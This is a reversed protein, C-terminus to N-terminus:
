KRWIGWGAPRLFNFLRRRGQRIPFLYVIARLWPHYFVERQAQLSPPIPFRGNPLVETWRDTRLDLEWVDDLQHFQSDFGRLGQIEQGQVGTPSGSGGALFLRTPDDDAFLPRAAQRPWPLHNAPQNALEVWQGAAEDFEHRSNNVKFFGYGGFSGMRGTVPNWYLAPAANRRSDPGGGLSRVRGTDVDIEYVEGLGGEVAWLKRSVPHLLSSVPQPPLVELKRTSLGFTRLDFTHFWFGSLDRCVSYLRGRAWDATAYEGNWAEVNFGQSSLRRWVATAIPHSRHFIGAAAAVVGLSGIAALWGRRSVKRKGALVESLAQSLQEASRFRRSPQVHCARLIVDNLRSGYKEWDLGETTTVPLSPFELRDNGSWAQYLTKGLGFLDAAPDSTGELPIFGETGSFDYESGPEGVLGYDALCLQGEVLILNAPKVDRHVLGAGHLLGLANSVRQGWEAIQFAPAPSNEITWAALTLPTYHLLGTESVVPALGPLNDALPMSHWIWGSGLEGFDLIKAFGESATIEQLKSYRGFIAQTKGPVNPLELKLAVLGGQEARALFLRSRERDSLTRLLQYRPVSFEQSPPDSM